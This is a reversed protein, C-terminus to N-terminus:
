GHRRSRRGSKPQKADWCTFCFMTNCRGHEAEADNSMDLTAIRFDTACYFLPKKDKFISTATLQCDKCAMTYLYNGPAVYHKMDYNEMSKYELITYGHVCVADKPPSKKIPTPPPVAVPPAKKTTTASASKKKKTQPLTHKLAPRKKVKLPVPLAVPLDKTAVTLMTRTEDDSNDSDTTDNDDNTASATTTNAIPVADNNKVLKRLAEMHQQQQIKDRHPLMDLARQPPPKQRSSDRQQARKAQKTLVLKMPSEMIDSFYGPSMIQGDQEMLDTLNTKLQRHEPQKTTVETMKTNTATTTPIMTNNVIPTTARQLEDQEHVVPTTTTTPIPTDIHPKPQQQSGPVDVPVEPQQAAVPSSVPSKPQQQQEPSTVVEVITPPPQDHTTQTTTAETEPDDPQSIIPPQMTVPTEEVDSANSNTPESPMMAKILSPITPLNVLAAGVKTKWEWIM